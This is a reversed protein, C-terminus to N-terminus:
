SLRQCIAMGKPSQALCVLRRGIGEIQLNIVLDAPPLEGGGREAWEILCLNEASFYDEVGLYDVEQADALRYLDFHFVNLGELEYPEVLTYTPSKVAGSFGFGRLVGRTLTTKGAGLDGHLYIMAGANDLARALQRGCELTAQEDALYFEIETMM